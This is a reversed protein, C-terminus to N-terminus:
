MNADGKEFSLDGLRLEKITICHCAGAAAQAQPCVVAPPTDAHVYGNCFSVVAHMSVFYTAAYM